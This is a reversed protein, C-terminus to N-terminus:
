KIFKILDDPNQRNDWISTIIIRDQQVKYFISFHRAATVRTDKFDTPKGMYNFEAVYKIRRKLTASIRKSYKKSGTREIWYELINRRQQKATTTRVVRKAM